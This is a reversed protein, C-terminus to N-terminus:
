PGDLRRDLSYWSSKGQPYLPRPTFSVVWKWRTGLDLIRPAIGGGGYVMIAHHETFFVCVGEGKGKPVCLERFMPVATLDQEARNQWRM